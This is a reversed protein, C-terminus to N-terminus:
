RRRTLILAGVGLVVAGVAVVPLMQAWSPTADNALTLTTNGVNDFVTTDSKTTNYSDSTQTYTNKVSSDRSSFLDFVSM